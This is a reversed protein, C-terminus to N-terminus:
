HKFVKNQKINIHTQSGHIHINTHTLTTGLLPTVAPPFQWTPSPFQAWAEILSSSWGWVNIKYNMIKFAYILSIVQLENLVNSPM